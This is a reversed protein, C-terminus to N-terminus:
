EGFGGRGITAKMVMLSRHALWLVGHFLWRQIIWPSSAGEAIERSLAVAANAYGRMENEYKGLAEVIGIKGRHADIILDTLVHADRLAINAGVGAMPTMNHIADGMLTINNSKWESLTPMSRLVIPSITSLDGDRIVTELPTAWGEVGALAIDRLKEQSLSKTDAPTESKPVIYAWLTYNEESGDNTEAFSAIFLWGRGYPVINNLSGDTMLPPLEKKRAEDLQYRGVITVIGLEERQVHPLRQERVKSKSGDAGILVDGEESTGDEFHARVRSGDLQEYHTFSKGWHVTAQGQRTEGGKVLDELLVERFPGRHTARREVVSEPKQTIKADDRLAILQLQTDRFAWQSGATCATALFREYGQPSLCRQLARKGDAGVHLGYGALEHSSDAHREFVLVEIGEEQQLGNALCLGGFGAGIILVRM